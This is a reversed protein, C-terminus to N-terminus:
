IASSQAPYSFDLAIYLLHFLSCDIIHKVELMEKYPTTKGM